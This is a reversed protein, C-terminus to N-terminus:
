SLPLVNGSNKKRFPPTEQGWITPIGIGIEFFFTKYARATPNNAPICNSKQQLWNELSTHLEEFSSGWAIWPSGRDYFAETSLRFTFVLFAQFINYTCWIPLALMPGTSQIEAPRRRCLAKLFHVTYQTGRIQIYMRQTECSGCNPGRLVRLVRSRFIGRLKCLYTEM